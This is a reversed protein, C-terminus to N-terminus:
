EGVQRIKLYEAGLSKQLQMPWAWRRAEEEDKVFLNIEKPFALALAQALDLFRRVNLFIPGQRHSSPLHFLDLRAVDPEFLSAYLVIGSMEGTGQLSLRVGKLERVARLVALGRRVDWVRQGDLTQGLLPFRRRIPIDSPTRAEAWRTPGIGRPAITAFGWKYFELAKRNQNFKAQDLKPDEGVQLASKFAPGLEETWEVWGPEDVATLIVTTPKDVKEATVLWLRLEVKEESIFDFARLRV